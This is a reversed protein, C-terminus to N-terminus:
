CWGTLGDGLAETEEDTSRIKSTERVESRSFRLSGPGRDRARDPTPVEPNNSVIWPAWNFKLNQCIVFKTKM